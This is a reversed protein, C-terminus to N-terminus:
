SFYKLNLIKKLFDLITQKILFNKRNLDKLFIVYIKSLTEKKSLYIAIIWWINHVIDKNSFFTPFIVLKKRNNENSYSFYPQKIDSDEYSAFVRLIKLTKM